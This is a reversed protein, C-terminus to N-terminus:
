YKYYHYCYILDHNYSRAPNNCIGQHAGLYGTCVERLAQWMNTVENEGGSEQHNTKGASYIQSVNANCVFTM